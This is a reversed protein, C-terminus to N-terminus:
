MSWGYASTFKIHVAYSIAVTSLFQQKTSWLYLLSKCNEAASLVCSVQVSAFSLFKGLHLHSWVGHISFEHVSFKTLRQAVYMICIPFTITIWSNLLSQFHNQGTKHYHELIQRSPSPFFTFFRILPSPHSLVTM